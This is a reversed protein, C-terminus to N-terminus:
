TQIETKFPNWQVAGYKLPEGECSTEALVDIVINNPFIWIYVYGKDAFNEEQDVTVQQLEEPYSM